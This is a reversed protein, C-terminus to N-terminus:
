HTVNHLATREGRNCMSTELKMYHLKRIIIFINGPTDLNDALFFIIANSDNM